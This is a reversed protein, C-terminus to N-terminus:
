SASPQRNAQLLLLCAAAKLILIVTFAVLLAMPVAAVSYHPALLAFSAVFAIISSVHATVIAIDRRYAYLIVHPILSLCFLAIGALLWYFLPAQALYVPKGIWNIVPLILLAAAMGSVALVASTQWTLRAIQGHIASPNGRSVAAVLKPYEFTIVAADVISFVANAIGAFLVYAGLVELGGLNEVAYRDATWLARLSLTAVMFPLAVFVGKRIWVWDVRSGLNAWKLAALRSFGILTATILGILWATLVVSLSRSSPICWFLVAVALAWLGHRIFLVGSAAVPEGMAVLLRNLEQALHEFLLLACFWLVLNWPLVGWWFVLLTLPLILLYIAGYFYAQARIITPWEHADSSILERHAYTYFDCGLAILAFHVTAFLLGYLGVEAASLFKALVLILGFKAFLTALRLSASAAQRVIPSNTFGV